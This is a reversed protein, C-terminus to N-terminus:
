GSIIEVLKSRTEGLNTLIWLSLIAHNPMRSQYEKLLLGYRYPANPELYIPDKLRTSIIENLTIPEITEFTDTEPLREKIDPLEIEYSDQKYIKAATPIGYEYIIHAVSVVEIGVATLIAPTNNLNIITIDFTLSASSVLENLTFFHSCNTKFPSQKFRTPIEKWNLDNSDIAINAFALDNLETKQM